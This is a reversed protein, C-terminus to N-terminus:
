RMSVVLSRKVQTTHQSCLENKEFVDDFCGGGLGNIDVGLTCDGVASVWVCITDDKVQACSSVEEKIVSKTEPKNYHWFLGLYVGFLMFVMIWVAIMVKKM